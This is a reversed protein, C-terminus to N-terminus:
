CNIEKNLSEPIQCCPRIKGNEALRAKKMSGCSPCPLLCGNNASDDCPELEWVADCELCKFARKKAVYNGGKICIERGEVLARAIKERASYLVRQFTPRTLNMAGACEAQEKGEMDKLRVAELEEMGLEIRSGASAPSPCFKRSCLQMEVIGLSRQRAM